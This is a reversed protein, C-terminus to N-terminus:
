CNAKKKAFKNTVDCFRELAEKEVKDILKQYEKIKRKLYGERPQSELYIKVNRLFLIRDEIKKYKSLQKKDFIRGKSGIFRAKHELEKIENDIDKITIM